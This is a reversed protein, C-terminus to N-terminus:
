VNRGTMANAILKIVVFKIYTILRWIVSMKLSMEEDKKGGSAM